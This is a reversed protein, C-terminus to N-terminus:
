NLRNRAVSIIIVAIVFNKGLLAGQLVKFKRFYITPALNAKFNVNETYIRSTKRVNHWNDM